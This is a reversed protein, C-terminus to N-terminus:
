FEEDVDKPGKLFWTERGGPIPKKDVGKEQRCVITVARGNLMFSKAGNRVEFMKKVIDSREKIACNLAKQLEQIKAEVSLYAQKVLEKEDKPADKPTVTLNSDSKKSM